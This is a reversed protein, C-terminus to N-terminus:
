VPARDLLLRVFIRKLIRRYRGIDGTRWVLCEYIAREMLSALLNALVPADGPLLNPPLGQEELSEALAGVMQERFSQASREPLKEIEFLVREEEAVALAADVVAEIRQPTSLDAFMPVVRDSIKEFFRETLAGAIADKSDFYLYLTGVAVGAGAAIKAVRAGEYGDELFVRRASELIRERKEPDTRRAM